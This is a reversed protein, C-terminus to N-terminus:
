YKANKTKKEPTWNKVKWQIRKQGIYCLKQKSNLNKNNIKREREAVQFLM